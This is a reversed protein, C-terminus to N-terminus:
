HIHSAAGIGAAPSAFADRGLYEKIQRKIRRFGAPDRELDRMDPTLQLAISDKIEEVAHVPTALLRDRGFARVYGPGFLTRWYVDPLRQRLFHSPIFFNWRKGHVDLASVTDTRRGDDIESPTLVTVCAFDADLVVAVDGALRAIQDQATTPSLDTAFYWVGHTALGKPMWVQSDVSPNRRTALFPWGWTRVAADINAADFPIRVPESNGIRDPIYSPLARVWLDLLTRGDEPSLLTRRSLVEAFIRLRSM